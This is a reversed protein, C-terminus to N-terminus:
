LSGVSPNPPLDEVQERHHLVVVLDPDKGPAVLPDKDGQRWARM